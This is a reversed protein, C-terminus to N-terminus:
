LNQLIFLYDFILFFYVEYTLPFVEDDLNTIEGMIEREIQENGLNEKTVSRQFISSAGHDSESTNPNNNRM